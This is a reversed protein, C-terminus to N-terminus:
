MKSVKRTPEVTLLQIYLTLVTADGGVIRHEPPSSIFINIDLGVSVTGAKLDIGQYRILSFAM